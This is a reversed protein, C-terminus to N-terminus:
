SGASYTKTGSKRYRTKRGSVEGLLLAVAAEIWNLNDPELFEM